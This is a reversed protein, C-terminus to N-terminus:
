KRGKKSTHPRLGKSKRKKTTFNREVVSSVTKLFHGRFQPLLLFWIVWVVITLIPVIILALYKFTKTNM